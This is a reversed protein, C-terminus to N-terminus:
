EDERKGLHHDIAFLANVDKGAAGFMDIINRTNEEEEVQEDIFWKLFSASAHDGEKNALEYIKDISASVKMEHEYAAKAVDLPVSPVKGPANITSLVPEAGRTQLFGIFKEAHEMEEKYQLFLWKGYGRYGKADMENSMGLYLFASYYEMNIQDNVAKVVKESIMSRSRPTEAQLLIAPHM